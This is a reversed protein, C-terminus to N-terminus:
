GKKKSLKYVQLIEDISRDAKGKKIDRVVCTELHGRLVLDEVSSLAQRAASIQHIVDICYKGDEVMKELGRVQGELIRLRRVARKKVETKM